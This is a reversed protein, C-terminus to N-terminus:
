EKDELSLKSSCLDTSFKRSFIGCTFIKFANVDGSINFMQTLFIHNRKHGIVKTAIEIKRRNKKEAQAIKKKNLVDQSIRRKVALSISSGQHM